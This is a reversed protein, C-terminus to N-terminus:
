HYKCGGICCNVDPDFGVYAPCSNTTDCILNTQCENSSDCDGENLGCLNTDITCFDDDGIVVSFCCDVEPGYDLYEPCNNLGCVLGHQCDEHSDCDGEDVACPNDIACIDEELSYCCDYFSEFGLSSRCNDTGCIHGQICHGNLDCDGQDEGCPNSSTCSGFNGLAM